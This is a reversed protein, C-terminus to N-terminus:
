PQAPMPEINLFFQSVGLQRIVDILHIARGYDVSQDAAIIAQLDPKEKLKEPIIKKLESESVVQGNLYLQNDKSLTLAVTSPQTSEGTAAKPLDVRISPSVILKATLMFIILLVLMIDVLPTVNIDTIMDQDDFKSGSAM